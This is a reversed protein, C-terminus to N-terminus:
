ISKIKEYYEDHEELSYIDKKDNYILNYLFRDYMKVEIGKETEVKCFNNEFNNEISYIKEGIKGYRDSLNCIVKKEKKLINKIKKFVNNKSIMMYDKNDNIKIKGNLKSFINIRKYNEPSKKLTDMKYKKIKIFIIM